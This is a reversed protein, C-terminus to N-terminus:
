LRSKNSPIIALGHAKSTPIDLNSGRGLRDDGDGAM